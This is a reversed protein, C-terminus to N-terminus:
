KKGKFWKDITKKGVYILALLFLLIIADGYWPLDTTLKVGGIELSEELPLEVATQEVTVATVGEENEEITITKSNEMINEEYLVSKIDKHHNKTPTSVVLVESKFKKLYSLNKSIKVEPYESKFLSLTKNDKDIACKLNFFKSQYFAKSLTQISKKLKYDYYFGIKGLGIISVNM